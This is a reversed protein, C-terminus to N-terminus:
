PVVLTFTQSHSLTGSTATLTLTYTGAPTGSVTPPTSSGGSCAPQLALLGFLVCLAMAGLIRRRRTSSGVGLGLLVMGPFGLWIGFGSGRMPSAKATTIPRATTTLNLISTAPGGILSVSSTTFSCSSQSPVGASCTLSINTSYVPLPQLAVAYVATQGAVGLTQSPPTVAVSFDSASTNVTTTNNGPNPDNNNTSSVTAAGGNFNGAALPTLVVSVTATSGAQLTGITCVEINSATQASCSGATASASNFTVGTPLTDTFTLNTALDPGNNTVVYSFTAQNGASVFLPPAPSVTGTISLDASSGFKTVFTDSSGKLSGQFQAALPFNSSTTDGTLYTNLNPDVAIGTGRDNGNGGFYTVFSGVTNDGLLATSNLRALYANQAGALTSQIAGITVPLNPTSTTGTMLAGGASDVTIALGNTFGVPTATDDGLYSFYTLAVNGTAPNSFRGVFADPNNAVNTSQFVGVTTPLTFDSSVTTGTIFINAAGSDLAIGTGSDNLSGGFYTSFLLPIGTTPNPNLKAIFADTPTLSATTCQVPNVIITPPATNLCPQYANLIPFDTLSSLGTFTFNTTGTFYINGTSDVAIGGGQALGNSPTGGGFYTSYAISGIGSALTNVKTVFFQIPARPALQFGQPNNSAPFAVTTGPVDTSQTTGTVYVNGKTDITMGTAIDTNNGSLYSSYRLLSGTSDLETVFAHSTGVSGSEPVAQYSNTPTTPFNTSSTSGAVFANGGGDVGIGVSYDTASGGLYTLYVVGASPPNAKPNLKLVFVNHVGQLTSQEAGLSVPLDTSTTSGSVYINGVNDFAVAPCNPTVTAGSVFTPCIESGSGGFYTSYTLIPDIILERNHDYNGLAFGVRNAARLEFRADVPRQQSGEQQYVHPAQLRVAGGEGQLVLDGNELELRALGDFELEVRSADSRPAVQFDYELQGQNGYFVLNIGPYVNEYRVRAFQPVNHHWKASDNGVLYNSRGPLPDSGSLSAALNAGALKMRLTEVSPRTRANGSSRRLALYAGEADLLLSYGSGRAVFKVNSNAQGVNPEFMLPLRSFASQVGLQAARVSALSAEHSAPSVSAFDSHASAQGSQGSAPRPNGGLLAGGAALVMATALLAGTQLPRRGSRQESAKGSIEDSRRRPIRGTGRGNGIM